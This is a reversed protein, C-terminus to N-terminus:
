GNVMLVLLLTSCFYQHAKSPAINIISALHLPLLYTSHIPPSLLLPLSAHLPLPLPPPSPSPPSLALGTLGGVFVKKVMMEMKERIKSGEVKNCQRASVVPSLYSTLVRTRPLYSAMHNYHLSTQLCLALPSLYLSFGM